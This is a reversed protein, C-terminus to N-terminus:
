FVFTLLVIIGIVTQLVAKIDDTKTFKYESIPMRYYSAKM